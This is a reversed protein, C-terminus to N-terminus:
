ASGKTRWDRDPTQWNKIQEQTKTFLANYAEAEMEAEVVSANKIADQMELQAREKSRTAYLYMKGTIQSVFNSARSIAAGIGDYCTIAKLEDRMAAVELEFRLSYAVPFYLIFYAFLFGLTSYAAYQHLHRGEHFLMYAGHKTGIWAKPMYIYPKAFFVWLIWWFAGATQALWDKNRFIHKHIFGLSRMLKSDENACVVLKAGFLADFHEKVETETRAYYESEDGM